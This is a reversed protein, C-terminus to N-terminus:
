DEGVESRDQPVAGEMKLGKEDRREVEEQPLGGVRGLPIAPRGETKDLPVQAKLGGARHVAIERGLPDIAIDAPDALASYEELSLRRAGEKEALFYIWREIHIPRADPDGSWRGEVIIRQAYAGPELSKLAEFRLPLLAVLTKRGDQGEEQMPQPETAIAEIRLREGSRFLQREIKIDRVEGPEVFLRLVWPDKGVPDDDFRLPLDPARAFAVPAVMIAALLLSFAFSQATRHMKGLAIRYDSHQRYLSRPKM